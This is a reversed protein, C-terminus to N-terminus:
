LLQMTFSIQSNTVAPFLTPLYSNKKKKSQHIEKMIKAPM